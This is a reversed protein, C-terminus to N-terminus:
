KNFTIVDGAEIFGNEDLKSRLFHDKNLNEISFLYNLHDVIGKDNNHSTEDNLNIKQFDQEYNSSQQFKPL